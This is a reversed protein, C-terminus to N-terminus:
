NVCPDMVDARTYPSNNPDPRKLLYTDMIVWPLYALMLYLSCNPSM